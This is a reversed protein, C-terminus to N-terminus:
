AREEMATYLMHAYKKQYNEKEEGMIKDSSKQFSALPYMDCRFELIESGKISELSEDVTNNGEGALLM